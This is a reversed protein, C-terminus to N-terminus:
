PVDLRLSNTASFGTNFFWAQMVFGTGSPVAAPMTDGLAITGSPPSVLQFQALIPAPDFVGGKFPLNAEFLSVFLAGPTGAPPLLSLDVAFGAGAPTLDGEGTLQPLQSSSPLGPGTLVFEGPPSGIDAPFSNSLDAGSSGQTRVLVEGVDADAPITVEIHTGGGTSVLAEVKSPTGDSNAKTFWVENGVADFNAGEITLQGGPDTSGGIADIRPKSASAVGYVSQIGAIDDPSLSRQTTGTGSIAPQMTAGGVNSHGLGLTHGIEHTAVGQLDVGSTVNGPGDDFIWDSGYVISWGDGAPTSTLALVGGGLSGVSHVNGNTGGSSTALGQFTNDFNAGGDGINPNSSIGDGLGNGARPGSGWECHAKWIAMVAGTYGPFNPHPITNDNAEPNTFNNFVRFDRQDLGLSEGIVTFAATQTPAALSAMLSVVAALGAAACSQQLLHRM